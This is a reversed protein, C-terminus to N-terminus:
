NIYGTKALMDCVTSFSRIRTQLVFAKREVVENSMNYVAHAKTVDLLYCEGSNAVFQDVQVLNDLEFIRGNTQNPIQHQVIEADKKPEYFVTRCNSTVLYFNLSALIGSDTHPPINRNISM